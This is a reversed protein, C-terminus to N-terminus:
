SKFLFENFGDRSMKQVKLLIPFSKCSFLENPASHASNSIYGQGSNSWWLSLASLNYQHQIMDWKRKDGRIEPAVTSTKTMWWLNMSKVEKVPCQSIHHFIPVQLQTEWQLSIRASFTPHSWPVWTHSLAYIDIQCLGPLLSYLPFLRVKKLKNTCAVFKQIRM